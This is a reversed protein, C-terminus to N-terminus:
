GGGEHCLYARRVPPHVQRRSANDPLTDPERLRIAVTLVASCCTAPTTPADSRSICGSGFNRESTQGSRNCLYTLQPQATCPCQPFKAVLNPRFPQLPPYTPSPPAPYRRRYTGIKPIRNCPFHTPNGGTCPRRSSSSVPSIGWSVSSTPNYLYNRLTHPHM